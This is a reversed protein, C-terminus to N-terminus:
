GRPACGKRRRPLYKGKSAEDHDAHGASTATPNVQRAQPAFLRSPESVRLFILNDTKQFGYSSRATQTASAAKCRCRSYTDVRWRSHLNISLLFCSWRPTSVGDCRGRRVVTGQISLSLVVKRRSSVSARAILVSINFSQYEPRKSGGFEVRRNSPYRALRDSFGLMRCATLWDQQDSDSEALSAEGALGQPERKM